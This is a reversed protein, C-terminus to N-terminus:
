RTRRGGGDESKLPWRGPLAAIARSMTSTSVQVGTAATFADAHESLTADAAQRLRQPLWAILARTKQPAPGHQSQRRPALGGKERRLRVYRELTPMSIGFTRVVQTRPMGDDLAAMIRHRLDISYAQMVGVNGM